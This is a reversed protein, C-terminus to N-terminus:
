PSGECKGVKKDLYFGGVPASLCLQDSLGNLAHASVREEERLQQLVRRDDIAGIRVHLNLVCEDPEALGGGLDVSGRGVRASGLRDQFLRPGKLITKRKWALYPPQCGNELRVSLYCCGSAAEFFRM